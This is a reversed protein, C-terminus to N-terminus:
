KRTLIAALLIHRLKDLGLKDLYSESFDLKFGGKFNRIRKKLQPRSLSVVSTSIREFVRASAM